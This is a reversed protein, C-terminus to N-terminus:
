QWKKRRYLEFFIFGFCVGFMFSCFLSPYFADILGFITGVIALFPNKFRIRM